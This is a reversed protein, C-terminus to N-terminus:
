GHASALLERQLTLMKGDDTEHDFGVLHLVGHVIAERLDRTHGPCIVVDGLEREVPGRLPESGDLPFSLVDTPVREGRFRANLQTIRDADVFEIALHGDRVGAAAAALASLRRIEALPPLGTRLARSGIVEVDLM